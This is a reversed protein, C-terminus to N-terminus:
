PGAGTARASESSQHDRLLPARYAPFYTSDITHGTAAAEKERAHSLALYLEPQLIWAGTHFSFHRPSFAAKFHFLTDEERAGRGGGLQLWLNGRNRAWVQIDHYLRSCPSLHYLDERTAALYTTVYPPHEIVLATAAVQDGAFTVFLTGQSDLQARIRQFFERSFFYYDSARNRRMTADYMRFFDEFYHWDPDPSSHLVSRTPTRLSWRLSRRYENWVAEPSLSLDIAVTKGRSVLGPEPSVGSSSGSFGTAFRQNAILPHFRTFVSVVGSSRWFDSFAAFAEFLFPEGPLSGQCLPGPYGYVSTVDCVGPQGSALDPDVRRCLHPWLCFRDADGYVLLLADGEGSSEALAHYNATHFFDHPTRALWEGWEPSSAPIALLQERM